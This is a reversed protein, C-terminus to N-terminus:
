GPFTIRFSTGGQGSVEIKGHLQSSLTSVLQLGLSDSERWNFNEPFGVGDDRVYLLLNGEDEPGLSVYLNGRKGDPFAYKITNTVLESIILGCPIATDIGLFIDHTEIHMRIQDPNAAYSRFLYVMLDHVYGDFDIRALDKSQYLKEHILAMSRVRSQSERFLMVAEPDKIQASQLNLLSTIIQLNNKVRHHIEKLLVEKEKLSLKIEEEARQRTVVELQMDSYLQSNQIATGVTAAITELLRVSSDDFVGERQVSQISIVGTVDDGVFIPVGLYSRAPSGVVKDGLEQLTESVNSNIVLPERTRIIHSTIGEGYPFDDVTVRQNDNVFYPLSIMQTQQNYLAIYTNQVDFINRLQEGITNLLADRQLETTVAQSISNLADLETVRRQTETFLRANDLALGLNEIVDNVVHIRDDSWDRGSDYDELGITGIVQGRVIIPLAVTSHGNERAIVLSGSKEARDLAPMERAGGFDSRADEIWLDGHEQNLYEQWGEGTLRRTLTQLEQAVAREREALRSAESLARQTQEFLRVNQIAVGLNSAITTLLRMENEAFLGEQELNQVSVVGMVQDSVIIPVGLFSKAPPGVYKAGLQNARDVSNENILLPQRSKIIISSLGEGLPLPPVTVREDNNLVYPLEIMQERPDYLAIYVHKVNFNKRLQDGVQELLSGMDMQTSAIQSINTLVGLEAVRQESQQFLRANELAITALQAFRNLVSVENEDFSREAETYALGVVGVVDDATRMPVGVVSRIQSRRAGTLHGSWNQYDNIALSEGTQWVAGVLGVGLRTRAGVLDDYLGTGVRLVMEAGGPTKLYIYGHETGVLAGARTVITSLLENADLRGVLGLTTENLATLYASNEQLERYTQALQANSAELQNKNNELEANSAELERKSAELDDNSSKLQRTREQVRQELGELTQRLRTTMNNFATALQAVESPGEVNARLSLNGETIRTATDTLNVIPVALRRALLVGVLGAISATILLIALTGAVNQFIPAYAELWPTETVVAWDPTILPSYSTLVTDGNIGVSVGVETPDGATGGDRFKEVGPLNALNEGRLVRSTDRYALLDGQRDVVYASGAEGVKIQDVLDWMYKLNVEAVLVGEIDQLVNIAPVSIIVLPESTVADVYVPSVFRSGGQVQALMESDLRDTLNRSTERFRSAQALEQNNPDLLVLHRYSPELGLMKQLVLEQETRTAKVPDIVRSAAELVGFKDQIFGRVESAAEQAILLQQSAISQQQSQITSYLQLGGSAVLVLVSLVLFAIALTTVLSSAARPMKTSTQM